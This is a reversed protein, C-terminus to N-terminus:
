ENEKEESSRVNIVFDCARMGHQKITIYAGLLILIIGLFGAINLFDSKATIMESAYDWGYLVAFPVLFFCLIFSIFNNEKKQSSM